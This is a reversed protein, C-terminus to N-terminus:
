EPFNAIVLEYEPTEEQLGGVRVTLRGDATGEFIEAARSSFFDFFGLRAICTKRAHDALSTELNGQHCTQTSNRAM